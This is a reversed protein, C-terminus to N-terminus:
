IAKTIQTWNGWSNDMFVRVWQVTPDIDKWVTQTIRTPVGEVRVYLWANPIPTNSTTGLMNKIFYSGCAKVNNLDIATTIVTPTWVQRLAFDTYANAQGLVSADAKNMAATLDSKATDTYAKAQSLVSNDANTRATTENVLATSIENEADEPAPRWDTAVNGKEVQYHDVSISYGAPAMNIWFFPSPSEFGLNGAFRGSDGIVFTEKVTYTTQGDVLDNKSLTVHIKWNHTTRFLGVTFYDSFDSKALTGNKSITLNGTVTLTDDYTLGLNSLHEKLVVRQRDPWYYGSELTIDNSNANTTGDFFTKAEQTGLVLNRGGVNLALDGNTDPKLSGNISKVVGANAASLKSDIDTKQYYNNNMTTTLDSKATDTYAKAQTLVSNDANTMATTLDSKATDTYGKAQSLVSTDSNQRNQTESDLLRTLDDRLQNAEAQSQFPLSLDGNADPKFTGNVSKVVGETTASITVSSSNAVAAYIQLTFTFSADSDSPRAPMTEPDVAPTVAYLIESKGAEQAYIGVAFIKYQDTLGRNVFQAKLGIQKPNSTDFATVTGNQVISNLSTLGLVQDITANQLTSDGSTVVRTIKFTSTGNVTRKALDLGASTLITNGYRAM